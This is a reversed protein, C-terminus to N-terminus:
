TSEETVRGALAARWMQRQAMTLRDGSEERARLTHAWGRGDLSLSKAKSVIGGVVKRVFEDNARPAPLEKPLPEPRQVCLGRFQILNPPQAPLHELAYAIADPKGIFCRLERCWHAKLSRVHLAPEMGEPCEWQRDFASGYTARMVSWIKEVWADPLSSEPQFM